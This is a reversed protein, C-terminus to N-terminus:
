LKSQSYAQLIQMQNSTISTRPNNQKVWQVAEWLPMNEHRCLYAVCISPSREMGALCHVYSPLGQSLNDRLAAVAAAIQEPQMKEQYHSDPLVLRQWTFTTPVEIYLKGETEACLSLVAKIGSECLQHYIQDDPIPGVALKGPIIWRLDKALLQPAVQAKPATESSFNLFRKLAQKM